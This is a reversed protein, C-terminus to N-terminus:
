LSRDSGVSEEFDHPPDNCSVLHLKRALVLSLALIGKECRFRNRDGSSCPHSVICNRELIWCWWVKHKQFRQNPDKSWFFDYNQNFLGQESQFKMLARLSRTELFQAKASCFLRIEHKKNKGVRHSLFGCCACVLNWFERPHSAVLRLLALYIEISGSRLRYEVKNWMLTM